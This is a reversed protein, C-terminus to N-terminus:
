LLNGGERVNGPEKIGALSTGPVEEIQVFLNNFADREKNRLGQTGLGFLFYDRCTPTRRLFTNHYVRM